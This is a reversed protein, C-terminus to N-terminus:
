QKVVKASYEDKGALVRLLYVGPALDGAPINVTWGYSSVRNVPRGHIDSLIIDRKAAGTNFVIKLQDDFPNPNVTFYANTTYRHVVHSIDIIWNEPDPVVDQVKQKMPIGITKTPTDYDIQLSSNQGDEFILGIDMTTRFFPTALSSGKQEAVIYLSDTTQWWAFNFEPFGQGYYWQDFFGDFTIGSTENLVALFDDGTAVSDAFREQFNILTQFFLSDDGMEYRIM